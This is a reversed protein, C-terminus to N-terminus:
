GGTKIEKICAAVGQVALDLLNVATEGCINACLETTFLMPVGKSLLILM